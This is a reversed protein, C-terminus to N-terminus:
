CWFRFRCTMSQQTPIGTLGEKSGYQALIDAQSLILDLLAYLGIQDKLMSQGSQGLSRASRTKHRNLEADCSLVCCAPSKESSHLHWAM